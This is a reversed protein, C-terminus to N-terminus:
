GYKQEVDRWEGLLASPEAVRIVVQAFILTDRAILLNTGFCDFRISTRHPLCSVLTHNHSCLVTAFGVRELSLINRRRENRNYSRRYMGLLGIKINSTTESSRDSM